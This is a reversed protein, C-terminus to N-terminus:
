THTVKRLVQVIEVLLVLNCKVVIVILHSLQLFSVKSESRNSNAVSKLEEFCVFVFVFNFRTQNGNQEQACM